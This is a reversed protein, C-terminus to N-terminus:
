RVSTLWGRILVAEKHDPALELVRGFAKETEAFRGLGLQVVGLNYHADVNDPKLEIARLFQTIADESRGLTHYVNGLNVYGEVFDPRLRVVEKYSQAAPDYRGHMFHIDGVLSHAEVFEPNGAVAELFHRLAEEPRNLGMLCNGIGFQADPSGPRLRLALQFAKTAESYRRMDYLANGLNLHGGEFDPALALARRYNTLAPEYEGLAVHTNALNYHVDSLEPRLSLARRFAEKAEAFRGQKVLLNGRNSHADASSPDLVIAQDFQAGAEETRGLESYVNGLNSHVEAMDPRISIAMKLHEVSEEMRGLSFLLTGAAFWHRPNDSSAKLAEQYAGLARKSDDLGRYYIGLTEWGYSRAHRSLVNRQLLEEFRTRTREANSNACVWTGLHLVCALSVVYGIRFLSRRDGLHTVLLRAAWVTLPLAPIALVDWDRFAGIEPNAVLMFLVPVLAVWLLFQSTSDRRWLGPALTLFLMGAAPAALFLQNLFDSLHWLSLLNYPQYFDPTSILPLLHSRGLLDIISVPDIGIVLLVMLATAPVVGLNLLGSRWLAHPSDNASKGYRRWLVYLFSPVFLIMVFHLTLLFGLTVAFAITRTEDQLTKIGLLIYILMGPFLPAYNEVYGFFLELFGATLIFVLVISREMRNAAMRGSFIFAFFIYLAGSSISVIRYTIEASGWVSRGFWHIQRIIWFTLPARDSRSVTEWSEADLERVYLYGDGLLHIASRFNIFLVLALLGLGAVTLAASRTSRWPDFKIRSLGSYLATSVAPFLIAIAAITFVYSLWGPSYRLLDVGWMPIPTDWRVAMLHLVLFGCAVATPRDVIVESTKKLM